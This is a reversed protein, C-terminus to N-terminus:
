KASLFVQELIDAQMELSQCKKLYLRGNKGLAALKEKSELLNIIVDAAKGSDNFPVLVGCDARLIIDRPEGIPTAIVPLEMAMFEYLKIPGKCDDYHNDRLPLLGADASAYLHPMGEYDIAGAFVINSLGLKVSTEKLVSLYEGDGVVLLKVGAMRDQIRRFIDLVYQRDTEQFFVAPWIVVPRDLNFRNRIADSHWKEKTFFALDASNPIYVAHGGYYKKLAKSAVTTPPKMWQLFRDALWEQVYLPVRWWKNIESPFIRDDVDLVYAIRRVKAVLFSLLGTISYSKCAFIIDADKCSLRLLISVLEIYNKYGRYVIGPNIEESGEKLVLFTFNFGRKVLLLCLPYLRSQITPCEPRYITPVVVKVKKSM